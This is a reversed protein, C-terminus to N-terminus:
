KKFVIETRNLLNKITQIHLNQQQLFCQLHGNDRFHLVAICIAYLAPESIRSYRDAKSPAIFNFM